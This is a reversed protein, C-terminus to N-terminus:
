LDLMVLIIGEATQNKRNFNSHMFSIKWYIKLQDFFFIRPWCIRRRVWINFQTLIFPRRISDIIQLLYSLSLPSESYLNPTISGSMCPTRPVCADAFCVSRCVCLCKSLRVCFICKIQNLVPFRGSFVQRPQRWSRTTWRHEVAAEIICGERRRKSTFFDM